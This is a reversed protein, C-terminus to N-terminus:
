RARKFILRNPRQSIPHTSESNDFIAVGFYYEKSLDTFQIDDDHGTNLKRAVELTWMGEKWLGKGIIDGRSGTFKELVWGPLIAGPKFTRYDKIAKAEDIFLFRSDRPKGKWSYQPSGEQANPLYGGGERKDGKRGAEQSKIDNDLFQDDLQGVPNTRAAKWLWMDARESPANTYMLPRDRGPTTAHCLVACGQQNFGSISDKINWLLALKDEALRREQRWRDGDYIWPEHHHGETSDVWQFLFYIETETYLSRVWLNTRFGEGELPIKLPKAKDWLADIKGDIKPPVKVKVSVLAEEAALVLAVGGALLGVALLTSIWGGMRNM